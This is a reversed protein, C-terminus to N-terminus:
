ALPEDRPLDALGLYTLAQLMADEHTIGASVKPALDKGVCGFIRLAGNLLEDKQAELYQQVETPTEFDGALVIIQTLQELLWERDRVRQPHQFLVVLFGGIVKRQQSDMSALSLTLAARDIEQSMAVPYGRM